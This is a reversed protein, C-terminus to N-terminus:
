TKGIQGPFIIYRKKGGSTMRKVQLKRNSLLRHLINKDKVNDAFIFGKDIIKQLFLLDKGQIANNISADTLPLKVYDITTFPLDLNNLAFVIKDQRRLRGIAQVIIAVHQKIIIDTSVNWARALGAIEDDPLYLGTGDFIIKFDEYVNTGSLPLYDLMVNKMQIKGLRLDNRTDNDGIKVHDINKANLAVSILDLIKGKKVVVLIKENKYKDIVYLLSNILLSINNIDIMFSTYSGTFNLSQYVKYKNDERLNGFTYIDQKNKGLFIALLDINATADLFVIRKTNNLLDRLRYNLKYIKAISNSNNKKNRRFRIRNDIEDQPINYEMVDSLIEIILRIPELDPVNNINFKRSEVSKVLREFFQQKFREIEIRKVPKILPKKFIVLSGIFDIIAAMVDDNFTKYSNVFSDFFNWADTLKKITFEYQKMAASEFAEDLFITYDGADLITSRIAPINLADQTTIFSPRTNKIDEFAQFYKCTTRDCKHYCFSNILYQHNEYKTIDNLKTCIDKRRPTTIFDYPIGKAICANIINTSADSKQYHRSSCLVFHEKLVSSSVGSNTTKGSGTIDDILSYKWTNNNLIAYFKKATGQYKSPFNSLFTNEDISLPLSPNQHLKAMTNKFEEERRKQILSTKKAERDRYRKDYNIAVKVTKFKRSYKQSYESIIDEESRVDMM